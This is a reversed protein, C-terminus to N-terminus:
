AGYTYIPFTSPGSGLAFVSPGYYMSPYQSAFMAAAAATATQPVVVQQQSQAYNMSCVGGYQGSIHQMSHLRPLGASMSMGIMQDTEGANHVAGHLPLRDSSSFLSAVNPYSQTAPLSPVYCPYAAATNPVSTQSQSPVSYYMGGSQAAAAPVASPVSFTFDSHAFGACSLPPTFMAPAVAVSRAPIVLPEITPCIRSTPRSGHGSSYFQTAAPRMRKAPPSPLLEAAPLEHYRSPAVVSPSPVVQLYEAPSCT